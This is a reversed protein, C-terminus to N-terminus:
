SPGVRQLGATARGDHGPDGATPWRCLIRGPVAVVVHSSAGSARVGRWPPSAGSAAWPSGAATRAGRRLCRNSLIPSSSRRRDRGSPRSPLPAPRLTEARELSAIAFALATSPSDALKLRGVSLLQAAERQLTERVSRRWLVGFVSAVVIALVLASAVAIRRRRRRRNAAVDMAAAFSEELETLGGPYRERWVAYERYAEGSWLRDDSRGHEHWQRAAERLEDRLRASDSDQTRWGVLRPWHSILSEHIVEVRQAGPGDNSPVEYSTLLRADILAPVETV